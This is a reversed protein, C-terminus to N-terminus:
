AAKRSVVVSGLALVAAQRGSAFAADAIMAETGAWDGAVFLSEIGPVAPGPRGTVGGDDSTVLRHTVVLKPLYRQVKVLKRWGPQLLDMLSELEKQDSAADSERSPDLYKAIHVMAAGEPAFKGTASHVSYYLSADIGLAFKVDPNPLSALGLDLCAAKVPVSSAAWGNLTANKGGDVLKAADAPGTALIVSTAPVMRGSALHVGTSAGDETEVAIVEEGTVFTVGAKEASSRLGGVITQWGHDLYYVNGKFALRMQRIASGASIREPSNSYTAVRCLAEVSQRVAASARRGDLWDKLSIKELAEPKATASVASLAILFGFRERWSYMPNFLISTLSAPLKFRKGGRVAAAGAASPIKRSFQVGFEDLVKVGEGLCYLAHPGLNLYFGDQEKTVARGGPHSSKEFVTVKRGGKALYNAATLGALGSGVVVAQKQQEAM